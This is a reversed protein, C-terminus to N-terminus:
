ITPVTELSVPQKSQVSRDAAEVARVAFLTDEPDVLPPRDELIASVFDKVEALMSNFKWAMPDFPVDAVIAGEIDGSGFYYRVVPDALQDIIMGGKSGYIELRETWPIEFTCSVNLQFEGGNALHGLLLGNDEAEGEPVVKSYFGLVDKIGGFFWKYLYLNHVASDLVVGGYPLKGHWLTPDKIRGVESGAILSRVSWIEGLLDQDLLEKAKQYATVFRTNEAVSFKLGKKKALDIMERGQSSEVAIPKETLVHKGANLAAMAIPYHLLHPAIIDVMDVNPDALLEEYSTYGHANPYMGLRNNVEEQNIDCMATIECGDPFESYGAEHAFSIAGLGILGIRVKNGM